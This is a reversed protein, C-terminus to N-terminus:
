RTSLQHRRGRYMNGSSTLLERVFQNYPMNRSFAQNLWRTFIYPGKNYLLQKTNNLHDGWYLAWFDAYEPRELLQDVLKARKNPIRTPSSPM